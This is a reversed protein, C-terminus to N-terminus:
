KRRLEKVIFAKIEDHDAKWHDGDCEYGDCCFNGLPFRKDFRKHMDEIQEKTITM